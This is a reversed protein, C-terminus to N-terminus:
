PDPEPYVAERAAASLYPRVVKYLYTAREESLGGPQIVPPLTEDIVDKLAIRVRQDPQDAGTRMTVYGPDARTMKFYQNKSHNSLLIISILKTICVCHCWWSLVKSRFINANM